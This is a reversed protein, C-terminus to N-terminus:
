KLLLALAIEAYRAEIKFPSSAESADSSRGQEM